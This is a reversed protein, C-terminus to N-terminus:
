HDKKVRIGTIEEETVGAHTLATSRAQDETVATSGQSDGNGGTEQGTGSQSSGSAGSEQGTGGQAANQETGTGGCATLVVASIVAAMLFAFYKKRM